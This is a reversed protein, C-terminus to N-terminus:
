PASRCTVEGLRLYANQATRDHGALAQSLLLPACEQGGPTFLRIESNLPATTLFYGESDTLTSDPGASVRALGLPSGASDILRGFLTLSFQADYRVNVVNGRYMPIDRRTLDISYPPAQEPQLQLTYNQYAPLIITTTEDPAFQAVERNGIVVKYTGTDKIQERLEQPISSRDLGSNRL